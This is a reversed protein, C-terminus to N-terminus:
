GGIVMNKLFTSIKVGNSVEYPINYLDLIIKAIAQKRKWKQPTEGFEDKPAIVVAKLLEALRSCKKAFEKTGHAYNNRQTQPITFYDVNGNDVEDEYRVVNDLISKYRELLPDDSKVDRFELGEDEMRLYIPNLGFATLPKLSYHRTKAYGEKEPIEHYSYKIEAIYPANSVLIRKVEEGKDNKIQETFDAFEMIFSLSEAKMLHKKFQRLDRCIRGYEISFDDHKSDGSILSYSFDLADHWLTSAEDLIMKYEDVSKIDLLEAMADFRYSFDDFMSKQPTTIGAIEIAKKVEETMNHLINIIRSEELM